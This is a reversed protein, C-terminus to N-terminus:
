SSHWHSKSKDHNASVSISTLRNIIPCDPRKDGHCADALGTLADRMATLAAIRADLDAIHLITLKKVDASARGEDQWLAMLRGIEELSFGLRRAEVIFSLQTVIRPHYLRYNSQSREPPSILGIEEYHRIMKASIGVKNAVDGVRLLTHASMAM